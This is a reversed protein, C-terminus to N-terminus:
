KRQKRSKKGTQIIAGKSKLLYYLDKSTTTHTVGNIEIIYVKKEKSKKILKNSTTNPEPVPINPNAPIQEEVVANIATAEAPAASPLADVVSTLNDVPRILLDYLQRHNTEFKHLFSLEAQTKAVKTQPFGSEVEQLLTKSADLLDIYRKKNKLKSSEHITIIKSDIQEILSHMSRGGYQRRTKRTKRTHM